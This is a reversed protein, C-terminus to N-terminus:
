TSLDTDDWAVGPSLAWTLAHRREHVVGGDSIPDFDNPVADGGLQASRVANHACYFLDELADVESLPRIRIDKLFSATTQSDQPLFSVVESIISDDAMGRLTPKPEFGLIWALPWLNELRWGITGIHQKHADTRPLALITEDANTLYPKVDDSCARAAITASPVMEDTAAVWFCVARLALARGLIEGLPRLQTEGDQRDVPLGPAVRFGLPQLLRLNAERHNM